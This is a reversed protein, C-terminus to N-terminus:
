RMFAIYLGLFIVPLAVFFRVGVQEGLFLFALGTTVIPGLAGILLQYHAVPIENIAKLYLFFAAFNVLAFLLLLAGQSLNLNGVNFSREFVLSACLAAISLVAMTMAIFGFPPVALGVKKAIVPLAAYCAVAVLALGYFLFSQMGEIIDPNESLLSSLM